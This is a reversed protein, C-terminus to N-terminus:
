PMGYMEAVLAVWAAARYRKAVLSGHIEWSWAGPEAGLGASGTM